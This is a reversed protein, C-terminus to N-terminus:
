RRSSMEVLSPTHSPTSYRAHNRADKERADCECEQWRGRRSAFAESFERKGVRGDSGSIKDGASREFRRTHRLRDRVQRREAAHHARDTWRLIGVDLELHPHRGGTPVSSEESDAIAPERARDAIRPKGACNTFAVSGCRSVGPMLGSALVPAPREFMGLLDDIEPM